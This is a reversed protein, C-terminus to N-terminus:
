SLFQLNKKINLMQAKTGCAQLCVSSGHVCVAFLM